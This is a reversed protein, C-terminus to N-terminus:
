YFLCISFFSTSCLLYGVKEFINNSYESEPSLPHTIVPTSPSSEGAETATEVINLGELHNRTVELDAENVDKLM